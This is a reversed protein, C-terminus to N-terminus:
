DPKAPAPEGLREAFAAAVVQAEHPSAYRRGIWVVNDDDPGKVAIKGADIADYGISMLTRTEFIKAGVFLVVSALIGSEFVYRFDTVWYVGMRLLPNTQLDYQAPGHLVGDLVSLLVSMVISLKLFRLGTRSWQGSGVDLKFMTVGRKSQRTRLGQAGDNAAIAARTWAGSNVSGGPAWLFLWAKV